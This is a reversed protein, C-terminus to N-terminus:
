YLIYYLLSLGWIDALSHSLIIPLLNRQGMKKYWIYYSIGLILGIGLALLLGQYTHFAIRVLISFLWYFIRKDKKVALIIGIFYIEEYFGNLLAYLVKSLSVQSLIKSLTSGLNIQSSSLYNPYAPSLFWLLIDMAIALFFSLAIAQIIAKLSIQFQWHKFNFKRWYLYVLALALSGGQVLIMTYDQNIFIPSTLSSTGTLFFETSSWIHQGFLILTLILIDWINLHNLHKM